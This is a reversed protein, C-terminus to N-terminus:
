IPLIPNPGDRNTNNPAPPPTACTATTGGGLNRDPPTLNPLLTIEDNCTPANETVFVRGRSRNLGAGFFHGPGHRNTPNDAPLLALGLLGRERATPTSSLTYFPVALLTGGQIIRISGTNREAFFIRGDSSFALAIPWNLGAMYVSIQGAAAAPPAPVLVVLSGAVLLLSLSLTSARRVAAPM